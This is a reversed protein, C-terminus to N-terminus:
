FYLTLRINKEYWPGGGFSINTPPSYSFEPSAMDPKSFQIEQFTCYTDKGVLYKM